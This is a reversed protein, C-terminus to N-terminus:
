FSPAESTSQFICLPLQMAPRITTMFGAFVRHFEASHRCRYISKISTARRESLGHSRAIQHIVNGALGDSLDMLWSLVARIEEESIGLAYAHQRVIQPCNM